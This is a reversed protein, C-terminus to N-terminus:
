SRGVLWGISRSVLRDVSLTTPFNCKCSPTGTPSALNLNLFALVLVAGVFMREVRYGCCISICIHTIGGAVLIHPFHTHIRLHTEHHYQQKSSTNLILDLMGKNFGM